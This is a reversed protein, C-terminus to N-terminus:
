FACGWGRIRSSLVGGGGGGIDLPGLDEVLRQALDVGLEVVDDLVFLGTLM